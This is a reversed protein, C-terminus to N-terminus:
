EHEGANNSNYNGNQINVTTSLGDRDHTIIYGAPNDQLVPGHRIPTYQIRQGLYICLNTNVSVVGHAPRRIITSEPTALAAWNVGESEYKFVNTGPRDQKWNWQAEPHIFKFFREDPEFQGNCGPGHYPGTALQGSAPSNGERNAM